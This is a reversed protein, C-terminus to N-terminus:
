VPTPVRAARMASERERVTRESLVRSVFQQGEAIREVEVAVNEMAHELLDIRSDGIPRQDIRSEARIARERARMWAVAFGITSAGFLISAVVLLSFVTDSVWAM